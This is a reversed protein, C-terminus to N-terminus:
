GDLGIVSPLEGLSTIRPGKHHPFRERRDLLVGLMGISAAPDTDFAPSDGVYVAEKAEVGARHLALRFIRLDPKEVGEVGSIVTVDFCGAVELSELLQELWEEFNSVLGVKLKARHLRELTAPVDPFLRYNSLTTFEGYLREALGDPAGLGIRELLLRYVDLWFERSLEPSTSWRVGERSAKAFHDTVTALGERLRKPDVTYGEEAVLRAFLEPFSPYPHVLTEGADFFVAQYSV